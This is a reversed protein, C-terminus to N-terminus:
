ALDGHLAEHCALLAAAVYKEVSSVSVKLEVAIERYSLGDLKCLLLARRANAPLRHLVADIEMLAEVVLARAEESPVEPEPLAAITELWAAEIRRRRYLDIVLGKAIQTLYPRSQEPRPTNGSAIVRVYTDHALDAADFANGMKKRLWGRLWSHHESYLVEIQQGSPECPTNAINATSM